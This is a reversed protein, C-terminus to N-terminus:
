FDFLHHIETKNKMKNTIVKCTTDGREAIANCMEQKETCFRLKGMYPPAYSCCNCINLIDNKTLSSTM